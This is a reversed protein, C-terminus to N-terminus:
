HIGIWWILDSLRGIVCSAKRLAASKRGMANERRGSRWCVCFEEEELREEGWDSVYIYSGVGLSIDRGRRRGLAARRRYLILVCGELWM